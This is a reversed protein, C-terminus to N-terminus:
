SCELRHYKNEFKPKSAPDARLRRHAIRGGVLIQRVKGSAILSTDDFISENVRKSTESGSVFLNLVRLRIRSRAYVKLSFYCPSELFRAEQCFFASGNWRRFGFKMSQKVYRSYNLVGPERARHSKIRKPHLVRERRVRFSRFFQTDARTRYEMGRSTLPTQTPPTTHHKHPPIRKTRCTRQCLTECYKEWGLVM